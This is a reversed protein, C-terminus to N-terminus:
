VYQQNARVNSTSPVIRTGVIRLDALEDDGAEAQYQLVKEIRDIWNAPRPRIDVPPLAGLLGETTSLSVPM